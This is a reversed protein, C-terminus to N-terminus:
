QKRVLITRFVESHPKGRRKWSVTVTVLFERGAEDMEVPDVSYKYRPFDQHTKYAVALVKQGAEVEAGKEVVARCPAGIHQSLMIAVEKVAPGAEIASDCTIGKKDPPHAGGHFSLKGKIGAEM